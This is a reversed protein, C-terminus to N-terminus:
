MGKPIFDNNVLAFTDRLLNEFLALTYEDGSNQYTDLIRTLTENFLLPYDQLSCEKFISEKYNKEKLM